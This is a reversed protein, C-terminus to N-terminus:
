DVDVDEFPGIQWLIETDSEGNLHRHKHFLVDHEINADFHAAISAFTKQSPVNTPTISTHIEEIGELRRVVDIIMRKGLNQGRAREDVAVQWVFFVEPDNPIRYGSVFGVIEGDVEALACTDSFHTCQLLNCYMSNEDLPKCRTILEYVRSGDAATPKKITVKM